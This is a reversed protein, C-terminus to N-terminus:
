KKTRNKAYWEKFDIQQISGQAEDIEIVTCEGYHKLLRVPIGDRKELSSDPQDGLVYSIHSNLAGRTQWVKGNKTFSPCYGGASFRGEKNKIKYIM